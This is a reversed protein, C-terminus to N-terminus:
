WFSMTAPDLKKSFRAAFDWSIGRPSTPSKGRTVYVPVMVQSQWMRGMQRDIYFFGLDWSIDMLVGDLLNIIIYGTIYVYIYIYIHIHM